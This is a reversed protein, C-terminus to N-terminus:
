LSRASFADPADPYRFELTAVDANLADALHAISEPDAARIGQVVL